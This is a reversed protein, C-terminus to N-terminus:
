EYKLLFIQRNTNFYDDYIMNKNKYNVFDNVNGHGFDKLYISFFHFADESKGNLPKSIIVIIHYSNRHYSKM